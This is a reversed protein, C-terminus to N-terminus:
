RFTVYAELPLREIAPVRCDNAAHGVVVCCMVSAGLWVACRAAAARNM